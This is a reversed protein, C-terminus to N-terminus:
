KNFIYHKQNTQKNTSLRLNSIYLLNINTLTIINLIILLNVLTGLYEHPWTINSKIISM